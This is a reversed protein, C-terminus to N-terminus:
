ERPRPKVWLIKKKPVGLDILKDTIAMAVKKDLVGIVIQDFELQKIILPSRVNLQQKQYQEYNADIWAVINYERRNALQSYLLQGRKGAAYLVVKEAILDYEDAYIHNEGWGVDIGPRADNSRNWNNAQNKQKYQIILEKEQESCRLLSYELSSGNYYNELPENYRTLFIQELQKDTLKPAFIMKGKDRGTLNFPMDGFYDATEKDPTQTIFELYKIFISVNDYHKIKNNQLVQWYKECFVLVGEMYEGYGYQELINKEDDELIPETRGDETQYGITQGHPARCLEEIIYSLPTDGLYYASSINNDSKTIRDKKLYFTQIPKNTIDKFIRGLCEQTVGTGALEVFAFDQKRVDIEQQIYALVEARKEQQIECVAQIFNEDGCLVEILATVADLTLFKEKLAEFKPLGPRLLEIPVEFLDAIENLTRLKSVYSNKLIDEVEFNDLTLSPMRWAKRSGYFYYTKIDLSEWSILKDAIKKLVYGDRAIFYLKKIGQMKCQKLIWQVYPYLMPGGLSSGIKYARNKVQNQSEAEEILALRANRAAGIMVQVAMNSENNRLLKEEYPLLPEFCFHESHIGYAAAKLVDSDVNDGIHFWDKFSGHNEKEAVVEYLGGDNKTKKYESSVYIPIDKFIPDVKVLMNRIIEKDLYMDSILVVKNESQILDHVRQINFGIGVTNEYETQIELAQICELQESSIIGSEGLAEYIQSLTIENVKDNYCSDRALREACIRLDYFHNIIHENIDKYLHDQQLAQGIIAFIGKPTTTTRTIITDFIDFSYM